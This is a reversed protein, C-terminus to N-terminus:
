TSYRVRVHSPFVATGQASVKPSGEITVERLRPLRALSPLGADTIRGCEWFELRELSEMRGLIELSRDTIKTSGAYYSKLTLGAVQTTAVDTTDQCYMCWLAELQACAGVHRFGADPVDMPLLEKLAPFRPLASLADDDVQKCSVALGKLAPMGALAAFGRSRLNPCERGWIHELTRSRSLAAFGDDGAVTGQAMLMRLRPIAAIHRMAADNCLKGDCGLFGLNALRALPELGDATIASTHWFLNLGFLGDLGALGKIGENTFPGDLMLNNPSSDFSMLSFSAEGGQWSKFVPFQHLFMIGADTVRRGTKFKRLGAKGTLARIAGDGTPTGMLNVSELHECFRLNAVGTDTIRQPWGMSFRRLEKLHRLVELGRDTIRIDQGSLDVDQLQAMRALHLLGDDTLRNSSELNLRTVHGLRSIRALVDDTMQGGADLTTIGQEAMVGIVTDWDKETLAHRPRISNEKADIEYPARASPKTQERSKPSMREALEAWTEFGHGRAVFRQADALTLDFNEAADASVGLQWRLRARFEDPSFIQRLYARVRQLAGADGSKYAKVIDEALREFQDLSPGAPTPAESSPSHTRLLEAAEDLARKRAYDAATQGDKNRISPDAGHALFLEVIEVARREDDPLWMLPTWGDWVVKALDPRATIIERLREIHGTYVLNWVDRSYRSLLEIMRPQQSHVACDLPTNNYNSERMDIEAGREILLQAVRVSDNYGAIHLPRVKKSDEVDPSMGLDLLLEVADVRDQETAAFIAETSHLLEPHNRVQAQAGERDLRLCAAALLDKPEPVFASPKAGHRVLLDAMETLGNRLAVEHPSLQTFRQDSPPAPDPSAGHSLVWEALELDSNKLAASLAWHAGSGYGGMNLMQWNPDDWDAQRGIKMTHEYVLKLFWLVDGKFHINYVVQTDYPEAGREFLLRVLADRRPHPPREEEGEGIAGVLPTYRSDGAMFFANPDAGHDLLTRAIAVANDNSKELSLRTFCLFLLPEWGKPGLDIRFRDGSGGVGERDRTTTPQKGSAALPRESLIRRVEDLEGCVVATHISDRAIEPHQRLIRMATHRAMDHDGGGRVHHDPCANELFWDVTEDSIGAPSESAGGPQRLVEVLDERGAARAVDFLTRGKSDRVHPDAGHELLVRAADTKENLVAWVLPACEKNPWWPKTGLDCTAYDGFPRRIADPDREVIGPIRDPRDFDIADFIDIPGEMILDLLDRHGAFSAWGAPTGCYKSDRARVNAGHKLLVEVVDRKGKFAAAHLATFGKAEDVALQSDDTANVSAGLRILTEIVRGSAREAARVILRGWRNEPRLSDPNQRLLREIDDKRELAVAAPIEITAGRDILLDAMATEGNLAAQDLATLGAADRADIDAGLEILTSLAKPQSKVVALHVPGRRQNTRDMPKDVDAPSRRALERIIDVDGLAVATHITHRAGHALLYEAVEQHHVYDWCIAWGLVNLEHGTGEGITDAGHEVLMRVVELDGREAAFHLPMADDGEDRINPDAGRELLTRVVDHHQIGFHLATRLGTHGPLTGREDILEPHEDLLQAVRAAQGKEATELLAALEPSTAARASKANVSAKLESWGSLGHERALAHQVDRLTPETPAEPHARQLRARADSVNERLAKLWRKAERKLNELTSRPTVQRPM